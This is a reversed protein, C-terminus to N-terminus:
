KSSGMTEFVKGAYEVRENLFESGSGIKVVGNRLHPLESEEAEPFAKIIHKDAFLITCEQERLVEFTSQARVSPVGCGHIDGVAPLVVTSGSVFASTCASGIGFAHCLTISVCVRDEIDLSLREAAAAGLEVVESSQLPNLSNFYAFPVEGAEDDHSMEELNSVDCELLSEFRVCKSSTSSGSGVSIFPLNSSSIIEKFIHESELTPNSTSVCSRVDIQKKMAEVRAADKVTGMACGLRDCAVQLVLNEAVNPLDSLVVSGPTVGISRLGSALRCTAEQLESYTLTSVVSDTQVPSLVAMRKPLRAAVVDIVRSLSRAVVGALQPKM